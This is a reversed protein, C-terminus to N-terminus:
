PSNIISVKLKTINTRETIYQEKTYRSEPLNWIKPPFLSPIKQFKLTNRQAICRYTGNIYTQDFYEVLDHAEEPM